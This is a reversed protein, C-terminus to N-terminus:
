ARPNVGLTTQGAQQREQSFLMRLGGTRVRRMRASAAASERYEQAIARDEARQQAASVAQSPAPPAPPKLIGM